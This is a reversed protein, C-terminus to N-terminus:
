KPPEWPPDLEYHPQNAIQAREADEWIEEWQDRPANIRLIFNGSKEEGARLDLIWRVSVPVRIYKTFTLYRRLNITAHATEGPSLRRPPASISSPGDWVRIGHQTAFERDIEIRVECLFNNGWGHPLRVSGPSLNRVTVAVPMEEDLSQVQMVPLLTVDVEHAFAPQPFPDDLLASLSHDASVADTSGLVLFLLFAASVPLHVHVKRSM